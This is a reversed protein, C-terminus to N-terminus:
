RANLTRPDGYGRIGYGTDYGRKAYDEITEVLIRYRSDDAKSSRFKSLIDM